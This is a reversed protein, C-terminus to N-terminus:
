TLSVRSQGYFRPAPVKQPSKKGSFFLLFTVMSRRCWAEIALLFVRRFGVEPHGNERFFAFNILEFYETGSRTESTSLSMTCTAVNHDGCYGSQSLTPAAKAYRRGM